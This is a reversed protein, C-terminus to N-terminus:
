RLKGKTCRVGVTAQLRRSRRKECFHGNCLSKLRRCCEVSRRIVGNLECLPSVRNVHQSHDLDCKGRNEGEAEWTWWAM